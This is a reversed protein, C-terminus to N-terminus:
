SANEGNACQRNDQFTAASVHTSVRWKAVRAGIRAGSAGGDQDDLIVGRGGEHERVDQIL